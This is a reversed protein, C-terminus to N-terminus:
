EGSRRALCPHKFCCGRSQTCVSCGVLLFLKCPRAEAQADEDSMGLLREALALGDLPPGAAQGPERLALPYIREEVVSGPAAGTNVFATSLYTFARVRPLASAQTPTAHTLQSVRASWQM